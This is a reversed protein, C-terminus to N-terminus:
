TADHAVVRGGLRTVLGDRIVPKEPRNQTFRRPFDASERQM